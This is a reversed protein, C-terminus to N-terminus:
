PDSWRRWHHNCSESARDTVGDKRGGSLPEPREREVDLRQRLRLQGLLPSDHVVPSKEDGRRNIGLTKMPRPRLRKSM